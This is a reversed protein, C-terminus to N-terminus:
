RTSKAASGFSCTLAAPPGSHVEVCGQVHLSGIEVEADSTVESHDSQLQWDMMGINGECVSKFDDDDSDTSEPLPSLCAVEYVTERRDRSYRHEKLM